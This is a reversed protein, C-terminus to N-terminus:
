LRNLEGNLHVPRGDYLKSLESELHTQLKRVLKTYFQIKPYLLKNATVLETQRLEITQISNLANQSREMLSELSYALRAVFKPSAYIDLMESLESGANFLELVSDVQNLWDTLKEPTQSRVTASARSFSNLSMGYRTDTLEDIRQRLFAALESLDDLFQQRTDVCLLVSELLRTQGASSLSINGFQASEDAGTVVEIEFLQEDSVEGWDIAVLMPDAAAAAASSPAQPQETLLVDLDGQMEDLSVLQEASIDGWDIQMSTSQEATRGAVASAEQEALASDSVTPLSSTTSDSMTPLSSTTSGSHAIEEEGITIGLDEFSIVTSDDEQEPLVSNVQFTEPSEKWEELQNVLLNGHAHLFQIIPCFDILPQESTASCEGQDSNKAPAITAHQFNVFERYFEVIEVLNNERCQAIVQDFLLPLSSSAKESLEVALQEGKVGLKQCRKRFERELTISQKQADAAKRELEELRKENRKMTRRIHPIEYQVLRRIKSAADGLHANRKRFAQLLAQWKSMCPGTFNGLFNKASEEANAERVLEAIEACTFYDLEDSRQVTSDVRDRVNEPLHELATRRLAEVEVLQERWNNDVRKRDVLWDLLKNEEIDIPITRPDRGIGKETTTIGFFSSM